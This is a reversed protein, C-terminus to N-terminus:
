ARSWPIELAGDEMGAVVQVRESGLFRFYVAWSKRRNLWTDAKFFSNTMRIQGRRGEFFNALEKLVSPTEIKKPGYLVALIEVQGASGGEKESPGSGTWQAGLTWFSQHPGEIRIQHANSWIVVPHPHQETMNLLYVDPQDDYAYLVSLTKVVGFCPDPQLIHSVTRPDFTVTQTTTVMAQVEATVQVGGWTAGLIRLRPPGAHRPDTYRPPDRLPMSSLPNPINEWGDFTM